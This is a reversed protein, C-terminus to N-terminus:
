ERELLEDELRKLCNQGDGRESFKDMISVLTESFQRICRRTNGVSEYEFLKLLNM